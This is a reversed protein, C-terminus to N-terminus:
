YKDSKAANEPSSVQMFGEFKDIAQRCCRVFMEAENVQVKVEEKEVESPSVANDKQPPSTRRRAAEVLESVRPESRAAEM